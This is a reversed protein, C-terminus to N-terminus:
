LAQEDISGQSNYVLFSSLLLALLFIKNDHNQHEDLGGFGECDVVVLAEGRENRVVEPWLWLGKTCPNVTNGVKFGRQRDLIVRNVLFSKGTRYKGVVCVVGVPEELSRLFAVSEQGLIFGQQPLFTVFPLAQSNM